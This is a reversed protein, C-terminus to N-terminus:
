IPLFSIPMDFVDLCRMDLLGHAKQSVCQMGDSIAAGRRGRASPPSLLLPSGGARVSLDIPRYLRIVYTCHQIQCPVFVSRFMIHISGLFLPSACTVFSHGLSM